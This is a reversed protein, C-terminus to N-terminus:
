LFLHDYIESGIKGNGTKMELGLRACMADKGQKVGYGCILLLEKRGNSKKGTEGRQELGERM